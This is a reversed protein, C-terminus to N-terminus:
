KRVGMHCSVVTKLESGVSEEPRQPYWACVNHVSMCAALVGVFMFYYFCLHTSYGKTDVMGLMCM